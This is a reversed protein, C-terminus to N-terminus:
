SYASDHRYIDMVRFPLNKVANQLMSASGNGGALLLYGDPNSRYVEFCAPVTNGGPKNVVNVPVRWKKSLYAAEIRATLDTSGGASFPVIIDIPRTPIKRRLSSDRGLTLLLSGLLCWAMGKWMAKEGKADHDLVCRVM